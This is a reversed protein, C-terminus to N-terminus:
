TGLSGSSSPWAAARRGTASSPSRRPGCAARALEPRYTTCLVIRPPQENGDRAWTRISLGQDAGIETMRARLEALTDRRGPWQCRLMMAFVGKAAHDYMQIEAITAGVSTIYHVIPDALGWYTPGVATVVVRM